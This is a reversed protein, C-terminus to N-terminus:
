GRAGERDQAAACASDRTTHREADRAPDFSGRYQDKPLITVVTWDEIVARQGGTMRVYPAGFDAAQVFVPANLRQVVEIAPVDEVREQYRAIAHLTVELDPM